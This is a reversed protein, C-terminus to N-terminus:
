SPPPHVTRTPTTSDQSVEWLFELRELPKKKECYLDGCRFQRLSDLTIDVFKLDFIRLLWRETM